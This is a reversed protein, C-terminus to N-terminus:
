QFLFTVLILEENTRALEAFAQKKRGQRIIVVEIFRFIKVTQEAVQIDAFMGRGFSIGV